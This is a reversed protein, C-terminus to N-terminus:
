GQDGGFVREVVALGSEAWAIETEARAKANEYALVKFAKIREHDADPFAGLRRRLMESTGSQLREIEAVALRLQEEHHRIHGEFFQRANEQSTWELYAAKLRAPDREPMYAVPEGAWDRLASQGEDTLSYETKTAGRTGWPVLRGDLLGEAEMKRLEPYIQSDPANWVHGVSSAFHKALDYGTMPSASLLALLASRLSM